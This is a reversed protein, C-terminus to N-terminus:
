ERRLAEIPNVRSARKAPLDGALATVAIMTLLALLFRQGSRHVYHRVPPERNGQECDDRVGWGSRSRSWDFPAGGAHGPELHGALHSWTGVSDGMENTRRTVLYSMVGYLGICALLLALLGFFGSLFALVRERAISRDVFRALTQIEFPVGKALAELQQRVPAALQLTSQNTHLALTVPSSRYFNTQQYPLYVTSSTAERLDRYKADKAIGVIEVWEKGPGSGMLFRESLALGSPFFKRVFSENVIAVRPAKGDDQVSFGRGALLTTGLTEFFEPSVANFWVHRDEFTRTDNPDVTILNNWSDGRIPPHSLVSASSVGPLIRLRELLEEYRPGIPGQHASRRLDVNILLVRDPKFGLDLSQLKQFSRVLLCAGVVLFLSLAVQAVLLAKGLRFGDQVIQSSSARLVQSPASRTARLSPLLGFLLGTLLSVCATFGLVRWNTELHLQVPFGRVSILGVLANSGWFAFLLGGSAGLSALLVSETLFLRILRWRGAGLALRVSTERQRSTARALLLNAINVCALLLVLSVLGTLVLLSESFQARLDSVGKAAPYLDLIRSLFASRYESPETPPIIEAMIAPSLVRLAARGQKASADAKLRGVVSLWSTGAGFWSESNPTFQSISRLPITMEPSRGVEVGFFEQPTVGVISFPAGELDVTRGLVEPSGGFRRQWADYSIVAVAAGSQRM